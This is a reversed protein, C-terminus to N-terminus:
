PQYLTLTIEQDWDQVFSRNLAVMQRNHSFIDVWFAPNRHNALVLMKFLQKRIEWSETFLVYLKAFADELCGFLRQHMQVHHWSHYTYRGLQRCNAETCVQLQCKYVDTRAQKYARYMGVHTRGGGEKDRRGLVRIGQCHQVLNAVVPSDLAVGLQGDLTESLGEGDGGIM